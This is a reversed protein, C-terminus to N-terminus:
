VSHQDPHASTTTYGDGHETEAAYGCSAFAGEIRKFTLSGNVVHGTDISFSIPHSRLFDSSSAIVGVEAGEIDMKVFTPVFGVRSCAAELTLADVNIIKGRGAKQFQALTSGITGESAFARTGCEDSLAACVPIVNSLSHLTINKLLHEYATPDPEFAFVKGTPGVARSLFYSSAGAHAGVDFVVDGPRPKWVRTYSEIAAEEEPIAPFWFAVGSNRFRHLAPQSYDAIDGAHEVMGYYLDFARCLDQIFWANRPAIRVIRGTKEIDIYEHHFHLRVGHLVTYMWLSAKTVPHSFGLKILGRKLMQSVVTTATKVPM